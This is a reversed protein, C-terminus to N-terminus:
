SALNCRQYKARVCALPVLGGEPIIYPAVEHLAIAGGICVGNSIERRLARM